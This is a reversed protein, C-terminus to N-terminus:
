NLIVFDPMTQKAPKPEAAPKQQKTGPVAPKSEQPPLVTGPAPAQGAPADELPVMIAEQLQNPTPLTQQRPNSDKRAPRLYPNGKKSKNKAKEEADMTGFRYSLGAQFSSGLENGTEMSVDFSFDMFRVGGGLTFEASDQLFKYGARAVMSNLDLELGLRARNLEEYTYRLLDAAVLLKYDKLRVQQSLGARVTTPLPDGVSIYKVENGVNLVSLGFRTNSEPIVAQYGFDGAFTTNSPMTGDPAPLESRIVKVSAGINHRLSMTNVFTVDHVFLTEAYSFSYVSDGGASVSRGTFASTGNTNLKNWEMSGNKSSYYSISIVPKEVGALGTTPLPSLIGFYQNQTDQVNDKYSGAAELTKAQVLGAPNYWPGYVGEAISTYAGGLAAPRPGIDFKLSTLATVGPNGALAHSPALLACLAMAALRIVPTRKPEM